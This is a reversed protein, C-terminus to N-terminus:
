RKWQKIGWSVKDLPITKNQTAQEKKDSIQKTEGVYTLNEKLKVPQSEQIYVHQTQYMSTFCLSMSPMM